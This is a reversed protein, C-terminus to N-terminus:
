QNEKTGLKKKEIFRFHRAMQSLSNYIKKNKLCKYNSGDKYFKIVNQINVNQKYSTQHISGLDFQCRDCSIKPRCGKKHLFFNNINKFMKYIRYETNQNQKQHLTITYPKNKM